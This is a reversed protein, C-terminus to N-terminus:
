KQRTAFQALATSLKTLRNALGKLQRRTKVNELQRRFMELLHLASVLSELVAPISVSIACAPPRAALEPMAHLTALAQRALHYQQQLDTQTVAVYVMTMRIDRHGLLEKLATLRIGARLMETTNSAAPSSVLIASWKEGVKRGAKGEESITESRDEGDRTRQPRALLARGQRSRDTRFM